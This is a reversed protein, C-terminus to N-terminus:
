PAAEMRNPTVCTIGPDGTPLFDTERLKIVGDGPSKFDPEIYRADVCAVRGSGFDRPDNRPGELFSLWVRNAGRGTGLGRTTHLLINSVDFHYCNRGDQTEGLYDVDYVRKPPLAAVPERV